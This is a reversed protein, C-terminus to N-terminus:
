LSDRFKKMYDFPKGLWKSWQGQRYGSISLEGKEGSLEYFLPSVNNCCTCLGYAEMHATNSDKRVIEGRLNDPEFSVKCEECGGKLESFAAGSEFVLPLQSEITPLKKMEELFEPSQKM